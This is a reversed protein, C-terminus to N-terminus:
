GRGKTGMAAVLGTLVEGARRQAFEPASRADVAVDPEVGVGDLDRGSPTLYRGVTLELASGDRLRSPEQVSGKGFTRSGVVVARGREQLAAAVVEASSATAADVLVVLPTTTDGGGLAELSRRSEGRRELLVVPGRDLFAGAVEVAEDLYGGPNGRLDLVVGRRGAEQEQRLLVRVSRGAGRPFAGVRLRLVSGPLREVAVTEPALAVRPLTATRRSARSQITLTTTRAAGSRLATAVENVDRGTTRGAVAVIRDGVGIGARAAPSDPVVSGVVVGPGRRAPRLWLGVGTYRGDLEAEFSAADAPGYYSAWRDGLTELMGEVAAQELARRDLPRAARTAIRAAAEDLVGPSTRAATPSSPASSGAVGTVVGAGFAGALALLVGARRLLRSPPAPM